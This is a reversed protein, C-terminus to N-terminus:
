TREFARAVQKTTQHDPAVGGRVLGFPTPLREILDIAVDGERLLAEAAYFGSPGSGVIAVSIMLGGGAGRAGAGAAVAPGPLAAGGRLRGGARLGVGRRLPPRRDAPRAAGRQRRCRLAAHDLAAHGLPEGSLQAGLRAGSRGASRCGRDPR